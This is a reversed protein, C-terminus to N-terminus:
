LRSFCIFRNTIGPHRAARKGQALNHLAKPTLELFCFVAGDFSPVTAAATEGKSPALRMLNLPDGLNGITLKRNGIPENGVPWDAISV